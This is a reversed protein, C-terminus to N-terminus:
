RLTSLVKAKKLSTKCFSLLWVTVISKGVFSLGSVHMTFSKTELTEGTGDLARSVYTTLYM